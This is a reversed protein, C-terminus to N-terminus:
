VMDYIDQVDTQQQEVPLALDAAYLDYCRLWWAATEAPVTASSERWGVGGLHTMDRVYDGYISTESGPALEYERRSIETDLEAYFM